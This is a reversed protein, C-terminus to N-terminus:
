RATQTQVLQQAVVPAGASGSNRTCWRQWGAVKLFSLQLTVPVAPPPLRKPAEKRKSCIVLCPAARVMRVQCPTLGGPSHLMTISLTCGGTVSLQPQWAHRQWCKTKAPPSCPHSNQDKAKAKLALACPQATCHSFVTLRECMCKPSILLAPLAPSLMGAAHNQAM